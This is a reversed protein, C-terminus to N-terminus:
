NLLVNGNEQITMANKDVSLDTTEELVVELMGQEGSTQPVVRLLAGNPRQFTLNVPTKLGQLTINDRGPLRRQNTDGLVQYTIPDGTQNILRVNVMGNMPMVNSAPSQLQEPAPAQIVAGPQTPPATEAGPRPPAPSTTETASGPQLPPAAPCGAPPRIGAQIYRSEYFISPCPNLPSAGQANNQLQNVNNPTSNNQMIRDGSAPSQMMQEGSAPPQMMQEGSAPPQMLRDRTDRPQDIEGPASNMQALAPLGFLLSGCIAGALALTKKIPQHKHIM